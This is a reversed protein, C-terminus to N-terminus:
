QEIPYTMYGQWPFFRKALDDDTIMGFIDLSLLFENTDTIQLYNIEEIKTDPKIDVKTEDGRITFILIIGKKLYLLNIQYLLLDRSYPKSILVKSTDGYLQVIQDLTIQLKGYFLIDQVKDNVFYIESKQRNGIFEFMLVNSYTNWKGKWTLHKLDVQPISNLRIEVDNETSIKPTIGQWCPPDCISSTLLPLLIQNSICGSLFIIIVIFYLCFLGLFKKDM